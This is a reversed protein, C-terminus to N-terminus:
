KPNKEAKTRITALVLCYVTPRATGRLGKGGNFCGRMRGWYEKQNIGSCPNAHNEKKDPGKENSDSRLKRVTL